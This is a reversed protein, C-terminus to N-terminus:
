TVATGFFLWAIGLMVKIVGGIWLGIAFGYELRSLWAGSIGGALVMFAAAARRNRKANKSSWLDPDSALDNYVSTLVTTPIESYGLARSAAVQAGFQWSLFPIGLLVRDSSTNIVPIVNITIFIAVLLISSGQLLFSLCLPLRRTSGFHRIVASSVFSGVMFSLIALISRLWKLPAGNGPLNATGDAM